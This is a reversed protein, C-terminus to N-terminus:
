PAYEGPLYESTDANTVSTTIVAPKRNTIRPAVDLRAGAPNAAMGIPRANVRIWRILM